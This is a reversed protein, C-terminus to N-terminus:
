KGMTNRPHDKLLNKFYEISWGEILWGKIYFFVHLARESTPYLQEYFSGALDSKTWDHDTWFSWLVAKEECKEKPIFRRKFFVKRNTSNEIVASGMGRDICDPLKVNNDKALDYILELWKKPEVMINLNLVKSIKLFTDLRPTRIGNEIHSISAQGIGISKALEQQTMGNKTRFEIVCKRFDNLETINM